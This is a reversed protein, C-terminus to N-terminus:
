CSPSPRLCDVAVSSVVGGPRRLDATTKCPPATCGVILTVSQGLDADGTPDQKDIERDEGRGALTKGPSEVM